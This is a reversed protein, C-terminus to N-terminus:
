AVVEAHGAFADEQRAAWVERERRACDELRFREDASLVELLDAPGVYVAILAVDDLGDGACVVTYPSEVFRFLEGPIFAPAERESLERCLGRVTAQLYGCQYAYGAGIQQASRGAEAILREARDTANM